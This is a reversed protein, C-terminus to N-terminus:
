KKWPKEQHWLYPLDFRPLRGGALHPLIGEAGKQHRPDDLKPKAQIGRTRSGSSAARRRRRRGAASGWDTRLQDRRPAAEAGGTEVEEAFEGHQAGVRELPREETPPCLPPFHRKRTRDPEEQGPPRLLPIPRPPLQLPPRPQLPRKQMLSRCAKALECNGAMVSSLVKRRRTEKM